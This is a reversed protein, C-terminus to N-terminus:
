DWVFGGWNIFQISLVLISSGVAITYLRSIGKARFTRYITVIVIAPTTILAIFVGFASIYQILDYTTSIVAIQFSSPGRYGGQTLYLTDIGIPIVLWFVCALCILYSQLSGRKERFFLLFTLLSFPIGSAFLPTVVSHTASGVAQKRVFVQIIVVAACLILLIAGIIYTRESRGQALDRLKFLVLTFLAFYVLPSLFVTVQSIGAETWGLTFTRVIYDFGAVTLALFAVFPLINKHISNTSM